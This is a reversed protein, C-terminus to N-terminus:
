GYLGAMTLLKGPMPPTRVAVYIFRKMMDKLNFRRNFRYCFEGLYRPLHQPSVSHCTGALATKVNSILTNVWKFEEIDVCTPGGGTVIREHACDSKTVARFCSLGDSIVTSGSKLHKKSWRKVEESTFSKVVNMNMKMPHGNEDISVAAIFPTKNESGRGRKGGHKEGGWYVDDIQVLGELPSSDDREKMVQMIKHKLKWATKYSVGIQRKLELISLSTKSQTILHISLFWKTLPLKTSAFITNSTLTTQHHCHNCQFVKRTHLKCYSESKCHPCQFGEPWKLNFLINECKDESGYDEFLNILSYGAQFQIKNIPM